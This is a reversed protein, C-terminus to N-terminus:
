ATAENYVRGDRMTVIRHARDALDISHTAVICAIGTTRQLESILDAVIKANATDLNGTPEDAFLIRPDNVLARALAVRQQEGGSLESPMHEAREQVGMRDMLAIAKDRALATTDGAVLAPMMVNKVATFEPLLHHFQFVMGIFNNRVHALRSPSCEGYKLGKGQPWVTVSGSDPEDLSALIHLLTSKGAGSPGVVAMFEGAECSLDVGRLVITPAQGAPRYAKHIDSAQLIPM